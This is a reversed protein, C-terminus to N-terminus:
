TTQPKPTGDPAAPRSGSAAAGVAAPQTGTRVGSTKRAVSYHIALHELPTGLCLAVDDTVNAALAATLEGLDAGPDAEVHLLLDPSGASGRLVARASAVRPLAEAADAVASELVKPDMRTTGAAPNGSFRLTGARGSRPIQRLLWLLGLLVLVVGAAIVAAPMWALELAETAGPAIVAGPAPAVTAAWAPTALNLTEGAWPWLCWAGGILLALGLLLLLTRNLAAPFTRM